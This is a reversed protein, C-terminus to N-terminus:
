INPINRRMDYQSRGEGRGSEEKSDEGRSPSPQTLPIIIGHYETKIFDYFTKKLWM